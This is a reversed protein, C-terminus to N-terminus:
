LALNLPQNDFGAEESRGPETSSAVRLRWASFAMSSVSRYSGLGRRFEGLRRSGNPTQRRADPTKRKADPTKRRADPTEGPQDRRYGRAMARTLGFHGVGDQYPCALAAVEDVSSPGEVM